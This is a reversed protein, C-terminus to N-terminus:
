WSEAIARLVAGDRMTAGSTLLSPDRSPLMLVYEFGNLAPEVLM